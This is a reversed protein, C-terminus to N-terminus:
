YFNKSIAESCGLASHFESMPKEPLNVTCLASPRGPEPIVTTFEAPLIIRRLAQRAEDPFTTDGFYLRLESRVLSRLEGLSKKEM